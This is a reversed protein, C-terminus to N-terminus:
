IIYCYHTPLDNFPSLFFHIRFAIYLTNTLNDKLEARHILTALRLRYDLKFKM